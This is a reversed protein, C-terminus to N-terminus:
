GKEFRLVVKATTLFLKGLVFPRGVDTKIDLVVFDVPFVLDVVKILVDEVIGIPCIYSHISLSLRIDTEVPEENTLQNYISLPMINVDSGQDILANVGKSPGVDCPIEFDEEMDEKKPLRNDLVTALGKQSFAPSRGHRLTNNFKPNTVLGKM